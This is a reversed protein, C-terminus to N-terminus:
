LMNFDCELVAVQESVGRALQKISELRAALRVSM